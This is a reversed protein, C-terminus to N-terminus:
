STESTSMTSNSNEIDEPPPKVYKGLVKQRHKKRMRQQKDKSQQRRKEKQHSRLNREKEYVGEWVVEGTSPWLWRRKPRDSDAEEALDEDMSKLVSYSFWRVWMKGRRSKVTHQEKMLGTEPNVYVMQRASHYAWVNILLELVRSYCHKDKAPSLYCRGSQHHEDYMQADLADVFMRSFMVFELFSRTPLAFSLMVSWTDGDEPMSPLSDLDHKIGYMRKLADSFALKCNGANIADCFSWFDRRLHSRPDMDMPVWFYVADRHKQTEIADILAKEAIRSLSAITAYSVDISGHLQWMRESLGLPQSYGQRKWMKCYLWIQGHEEKSNSELISVRDLFEQPIRDIRNAIAFFAGYDGLADRYYSNSLLPCVPPHMLTMQGPDEVKRPSCGYDTYLFLFSVLNIFELLGIGRYLSSLHLFSWTGEGFYPEYICLPQGTRLLEGEDREHLDNRSRDARKANRYVEEWTGRPQDTRDKLKPYGKRGPWDDAHQHQQGRGTNGGSGSELQPHIKTLSSVTSDVPIDLPPEKDSPVKQSWKWQKQNFYFVLLAPAGYSQIYILNDTGSCAFVDDWSGLDKSFSIPCEAIEQWDKGNLVWIGIGKIIDPRDQTGLGGVMLLGCGRILIMFTSLSIGNSFIGLVQKSKVISITYGHSIRNVSIALASYDPFKLGPSEQLKRCHKTIPNCVYLESRSDNDMFSVLGCSSAIFWNSTKIHPLDIGYWKQLIPDFAYGVPEDSSTFM